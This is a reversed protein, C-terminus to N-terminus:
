STCYQNTGHVNASLWYVHLVSPCVGAFYVMRPYRAAEAILKGDEIARGVPVAPLLLRLRYTLLAGDHGNFLASMGTQSTSVLKSMQKNRPCTGPCLAILLLVGSILRFVLRDSRIRRM